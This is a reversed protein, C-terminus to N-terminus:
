GARTRRPACARTAVSSSSADGSQIQHGPQARSKKVAGPVATDKNNGLCSNQSLELYSSDRCLLKLQWATLSHVFASRLPPDPNIFGHDGPAPRNL